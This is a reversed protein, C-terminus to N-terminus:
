AAVPASRSWTAPAVQTVALRARRPWPASGAEPERAPGARAAPRRLARRRADQLVVTGGHSEAVARVISLGLGSSAGRDGAGRVFREFIRDGLEPAVGPGDDQM